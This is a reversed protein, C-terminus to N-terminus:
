KGLKSVTHEDKLSVTEDVPLIKMDKVTVGTASKGVIRDNASILHKSSRMPDTPEDDIVGESGDVYKTFQICM